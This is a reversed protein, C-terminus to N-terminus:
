KIRMKTILQKIDDPEMKGMTEINCLATTLKEKQSMQYFLQEDVMDLIFNFWANIEENSDHEMDFWINNLRRAYTPQNILINPSINFPSIKLKMNYIENISNTFRMGHLLRATRGNADVFPHIRVFLLHILASKFFPNTNIVSLSRSKYIELFQDMFFKVDEAKAGHWFVVEGQQTMKSVRVDTVRYQMPKTLEGNTSKLVFDHLKQIRSHNVSLTDFFLNNKDILDFNILHENEMRFSSILEEYFQSIWFTVLAYDDFQKLFKMYEDFERNTEEMHELVNYDLKIRDVYEQLYFREVPKDNMGDKPAAM